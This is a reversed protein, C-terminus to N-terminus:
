NNSIEVEAESVEGGLPPNHKHVRVTFATDAIATELKRLIRVAVHEILRSKISMEKRVINYITEYNVTNALDDDCGSWENAPEAVVDVSYWGGVKQEVEYFGHYAYFRMNKLTIKM